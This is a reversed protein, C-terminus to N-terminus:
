KVNFTIQKTNSPAVNEWGRKYDFQITCEGKKGAKVTYINKGPAGVIGEQQNRVNSKNVIKVSCDEAESTFWDYGTSPNATVELKVQDGVNLNITRENEITDLNITKENNASTACASLLTVSGIILLSKKIM